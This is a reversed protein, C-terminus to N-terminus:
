TGPQPEANPVVRKTAGVRGHNQTKVRFEAEKVSDVEQLKELGCNSHLRGARHKISFDYASLFTLM